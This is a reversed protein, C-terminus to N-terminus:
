GHSSEVRVWSGQAGTSLEIARLCLRQPISGTGLAYNITRSTDAPGSEKLPVTSTVAAPM